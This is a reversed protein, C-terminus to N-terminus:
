SAKTSAAKTRLVYGCSERVMLRTPLQITERQQLTGDLLHFLMETAHLGLGDLPQHVTTLSPNTTAAFPMDDFSVVAVDHPVRLGAHQIARLAGVAMMDSAAFVADVGHTLLTQMGTYGSQENFDGTVMLSEDVAYGCETLADIYGQLRDQPAGMNRPGSIMGIRKYGLTILHLVASKAGDCNEVDVNSVDLGYTPGIIVCPTGSAILRAVLPDDQTASTIIAGDFLGHDLIRDAFLSEEEADNGVWLMVAFGHTNARRSIHQILTPFYPDTFTTSLSQPIIVSLVRTRQKALARAVFNPRFGQEQIVRLVKQRTKESVNPHGNLVRSVTSQSVGTLRVIDKLTGTMKIAGCCSILRCIFCTEPLAEM